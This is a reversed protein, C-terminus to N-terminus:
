CWLMVIFCSATVMVVSAFAQWRLTDDGRRDYTQPQIGGLGAGSILRRLFDFCLPLDKGGGGGSGGEQEDDKVSPGCILGTRRAM